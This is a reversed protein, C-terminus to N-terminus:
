DRRVDDRLASHRGDMGSPHRFLLLFLLVRADHGALSPRAKMRTLPQRNVAERCEGFNCDIVAVSREVTVGGAKPRNKKGPGVSTCGSTRAAICRGMIPCRELAM